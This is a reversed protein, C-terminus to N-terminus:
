SVMWSTRESDKKRMHRQLREDIEQFNQAEADFHRGPLARGKWESKDEAKGSVHEATEHVLGDKLQLRTKARVKGYEAKTVGLYTPNEKEIELAAAHKAEEREKEKRANETKEEEKRQKEAQKEKKKDRNEKAKREQEAKFKARDEYSQRARRNQEAKQEAKQRARREEKTEAPKAAASKKPAPQQAVPPSASEEELGEPTGQHMQDFFERAIDWFGKKKEGGSRQPGCLPSQRLGISAGADGGGSQEVAGQHVTHVAEHAILEQGARSEPQYEGHRFFINGGVTAANSDLSRNLRDARADTHVRVSGLDAGLSQGLRHRIPEPLARGGSGSYSVAPKPMSTGALAAPPSAAGDGSRASRMVQGAVREAEREYPEQSPASTGGQPTPTAFPRPAFSSTRTSQPSAFASTRTPQRQAFLTKM